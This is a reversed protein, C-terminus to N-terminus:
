TVEIGVDHLDELLPHRVSHRHHLGHRLRGGADTTLARELAPECGVVAVVSRTTGWGGARAAAAVAYATPRARRDEQRGPGGGANPDATAGSQV